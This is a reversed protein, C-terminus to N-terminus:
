FFIPSLLLIIMIVMKKILRMAKSIHNDVSKVTISLHAAIESYSLGHFRHLEFVKKRMRPMADLVTYVQQRIDFDESIYCVKEKQSASKRKIETQQKRLYDIFVTRSISFIHQEISFEEDLTHRYQWLKLFTLQVLDRADEQCQTKRLFFGYLRHRLLLFAQEYAFHDGKKIAGIM